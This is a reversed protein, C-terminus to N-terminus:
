SLPQYDQIYKLWDGNNVSDNVLTEVEHLELSHAEAIFIQQHHTPKTTEGDALLEEYLKEGPRLGTEVIQIDKGLTLGSLKILNLALDYIKVPEGMDFVYLEGGQGM